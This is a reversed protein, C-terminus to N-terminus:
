SLLSILEKLPIKFQESGDLNKVSLFEGTVEDKGLIVVFKYLRGDAYRLQAKFGKFPELNIDIRDRISNIFERYYPQIKFQNGIPKNRIENMTKFVLFAFDKADQLYSIFVGQRQAQTLNQIYNSVREVGIAFGCAPTPNGGMFEVLYDYRGGALIASKQDSPHFFEFVLGTYYDLGRVLKPEHRFKLSFDSLYKCVQEFKERCKECWFDNILPIDQLKESDIKCDLIRLPNEKRRRICDPCLDKNETYQRIKESYKPRCVRCGVSNISIIYEINLSDLFKSALYILYADSEPSDFGFMECGIQHFQRYRGKQPKERRFMPGIYFVKARPESYQLNKIYFRVAPATGEPRLVVLSDDKDKFSYLQHMVIDSVDGLSKIFVEQYEIIPTRVEQFDFSSFFSRASNELFIIKKLNDGFADYTGKITQM